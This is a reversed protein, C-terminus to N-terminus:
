HEKTEGEAGRYREARRAAYGPVSRQENREVALSGAEVDRTIVSGAGTIAGDGVTVPAVLMTDSGVFAGEGIHTEHKSYGDYNCTISGAGVNANAGITADGMYSLHPVKAGEGLTSKKIEVFSGVKASRRMVTGPRLTTYPGVECEPGIDAGRLVSYWVRSGRGIRTDLAFVDPGVVAGSEIVTAGELHCGPYIVAGAGIAVDADVYTHGPDIVSVGDSMLQSSIRRRAVVNAAALQEHTNIGAVLEEGVVQAEIPDGRDAVAAVVDTVYLEAQTNEARLGALDSVFTSGDFVYMGANIERVRRQHEDADKHEVIGRVAGDHRIVRGYGTPDAIEATLMSVGAGARRHREVLDVLVDATILPTDGPLVMVAHSGIDGAHALAIQTAHGTGRREEQVCWEVGEPLAAIVADAGHGVVVIVREPATAQVAEVVWQVMPRGAVRHLVKPLESKMRTGQGAALVVAVHSM